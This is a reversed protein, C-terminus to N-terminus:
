PRHCGCRQTLTEHQLIGQGSVCWSGDGPPSQLAMGQQEVMRHRCPDCKAQPREAREKEKSNCKWGEPFSYLDDVISHMSPDNGDLPAGSDNCGLHEVENAGCPDHPRHDHLRRHSANEDHTTVMATDCSIIPGM